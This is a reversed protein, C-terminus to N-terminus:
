KTCLVSSMAARNKNTSSTPACRPGSPSPREGAQATPSGTNSPPSNNSAAADAAPSGGSGPNRPFTISNCAALGSSACGQTHDTNSPTPKKDSTPKARAPTTSNQCTAGAGSRASGSAPVGSRRTAGTTNSSVM